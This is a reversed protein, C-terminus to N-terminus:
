QAAALAQSIEEPMWGRARLGRLFYDDPPHFEQMAPLRAVPRMMARLAPLGDHLKQETLRQVARQNIATRGGPLLGLLGSDYARHLIPVLAIGNNAKDTSTPDSVPVIHAADVLRLAIDTLACRFGYAHLVAPRFRADRFTQVVTVLKHRRSQAGEDPGSDIFERQKEPTDEVLAAADAVETAGEYIDDFNEVYWLLYDPQVAIAVEEGEPLQKHQTAMGHLRASELTDLDIQSSPSASDTLHRRVDWFAFTDTEESWGGMITKTGPKLVFAAGMSTRQVRRERPRGRGKGGETITWLYVELRYTKEGVVVSMTLPRRDIPSALIVTAGALELAAVFKQALVPFRLGPM